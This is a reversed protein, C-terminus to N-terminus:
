LSLVSVRHRLEATCASLTDTSHEHSSILSVVRSSFMWVCSIHDDVVLRLHVPHASQSEPQVLVCQCLSSQAEARGSGGRKAIQEGRTGSSASFRRLRLVCASAQVFLVLQAFQACHSLRTLIASSPVHRVM